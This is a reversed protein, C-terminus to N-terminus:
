YVVVNLCPAELPTAPDLPHLIVGLGTEVGGAPQPSGTIWATLSGAGRLITALLAAAVLAGIGFNTLEDGLSGNPRPTNM